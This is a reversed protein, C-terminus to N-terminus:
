ENLVTMQSMAFAKKVIITPIKLLTDKAMLQICEEVLMLGENAKKMDNSVKSYQKFVADVASLNM